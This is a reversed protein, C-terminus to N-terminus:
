RPFHFRGLTLATAAGATDILVDQVQGARGPIFTQHFEDTIAYIMAILLGQYFVKRMDSNNNALAIMLLAGLIFYATFHAGKRLIFHLIERDFTINLMKEFLRIILFLKELLAGSLAGSTDAPQHSLFFIVGMWTFVLMWKFIKM